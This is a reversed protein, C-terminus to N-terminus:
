WTRWGPPCRRSSSAGPRGWSPAPRGLIEPCNGTSANVLGELDAPHDGWYYLSTTGARCAYEWQADTPLELGCREAFEQAMFWTMNTAPATPPITEVADSIMSRAVDTGAGFLSPNSGMMRTWQAQTVEYKGLLFPELVVDTLLEPDGADIPGFQFAGGPILGSALVSPATPVLSVVAVPLRM